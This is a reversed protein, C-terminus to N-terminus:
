ACNDQDGFHPGKVQKRGWLLEIGVKPQIWAHIIGALEMAVPDVHGLPAGAKRPTDQMHDGYVIQFHIFCCFRRHVWDNVIIVDTFTGALFLNNSDPGDHM